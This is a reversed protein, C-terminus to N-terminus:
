TERKIESTSLKNEEARERQKNGQDLKSYIYNINKLYSFM